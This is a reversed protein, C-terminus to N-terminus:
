CFVLLVNSIWRANTYTKTLNQVVLCLWLGQNQAVRAAWVLVLSCFVLLANSIWRCLQQHTQRARSLLACGCVMAKPLEPQECCVFVLSVNSVWRFSTWTKTSNQVILSLWVGCKKAVRAARAAWALGILSIGIICKLNVSFQYLNETLEPSCPVVVFRDNKAVRATWM